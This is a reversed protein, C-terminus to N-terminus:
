PRVQADRRSADGPRTGFDEIGRALLEHFAAAVLSPDHLRRGACVAAREGCVFCKRPEKRLLERGIRTGERDYVDFDWLRGLSCGDELGVSLGKLAAGDAVVVWVCAPGSAGPRFEKALVKLRREALAGEFAEEGLSFATDLDPGNKTTGPVVLSFQVVPEGYRAALAARRLERLERDRLLGALNARTADDM